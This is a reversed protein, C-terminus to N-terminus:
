LLEPFNHNIIWQKQNQHMLCVYASLWYRFFFRLYEGQTVVAISHYDSTNKSTPQGTRVQNFIDIMFYPAAAIGTCSDRRALEFSVHFSLSKSFLADVTALVMSLPAPCSAHRQRILSFLSCTKSNFLSFFFLQFQTPFPM